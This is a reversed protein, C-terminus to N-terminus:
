ALASAERLLWHKFGTLDPHGDASIEVFIGTELERDVLPRRGSAVGLGLVAAEFALQILDFRLGGSTDIGNIGHRDLWAQWDESASTVHILTASPLVAFQCWNRM